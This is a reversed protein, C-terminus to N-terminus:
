LEEEKCQSQLASAVIFPVLDNVDEGRRAIEKVLSSSLFSYSANTPMFLTECDTNIHRNGMAMQLEYEYDSVARLGKVIIADKYDIYRAVLGDWQTVVVNDLGDFGCTKTIFNERDEASFMPQKNSNTCIVVHVKDFKQSCRHIIDMHGNTVPDFSGPYIAIM